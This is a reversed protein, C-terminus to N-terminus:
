RVKTSTTEVKYVSVLDSHIEVTLEYGHGRGVHATYEVDDELTDLRLLVRGAEVIKQENTIADMYPYDDNLVYEFETNTVKSM